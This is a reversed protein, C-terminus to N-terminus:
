GAEEAASPEPEEDRNGSPAHCDGVRVGTGHEGSTLNRGTFPLAGGASQCHRERKRGRGRGGAQQQLLVEEQAVRLEEQVELLESEKEEDLSDMEEQLSRLQAVLTPLDYLILPTITCM